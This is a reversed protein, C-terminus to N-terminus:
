RREARDLWHRFRDSDPTYAWMALALHRDTPEGNNWLAEKNSRVQAMHRNVFNRRNRKWDAPLKKASGAREYQTMFGRQSRAVKSVGRKAAFPKARKATSLRMWPYNVGGLSTREPTRSGKNYAYAAIVLAALGYGQVAYWVRRRERRSLGQLFM